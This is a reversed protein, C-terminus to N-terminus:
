EWNNTLVIKGIHSGSDMLEHALNAESMKFQRFIVPKFKGSEMVPWVNELIDKTLATKFDLDRSRLMSGSIVLRKQMVLRFDVPDAPGPKNGKMLNIFILRGEERLLRLNKPIYDGGIMDLIVDVGDAKLEKEFDQTKYNICKDAGLKICEACKEDSGATAFVKAGFSKALQIATIGIGSSGGHVLFHEDAKLGGRQFVNQWVTFVTEPLSAAKTFSFNSPIPLCQGANVTAYEAYGGGQLLACVKDGKKWNSVADGCKEIIGSVELGPIDASAGPPPPYSGKRQFVDPHNIGAAYIKILVENAAPEPIPREQIQLVEPGGPQTIIVANMLNEM